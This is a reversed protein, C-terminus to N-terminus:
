PDFGNRCSPNETLRESGLGTPRRLARLLRLCSSAAEDRRLEHMRGMDGVEACSPGAAHQSAVQFGEEETCGHTL